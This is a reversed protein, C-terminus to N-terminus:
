RRGEWPVGTESFARELTDYALRAHAMPEYDPRRQVMVSVEATIFGQYGAAHMANLYHVFDFPGEGPTLFEHNPYLGRQDKVHTHIALPAMTPVCEDIGIGMVDMHSIDFNMRVAPHQVREFLWSVKDPLDLSTGSHPEVAFVVDRTAAYEGLSLVREAIIERQPAWDEPGGGVLSAMVAPEGPQALEAALDISDRLRQMNQANREEDLECMSTHGAVATLVLGTDSFLQRITARRSADLAALETSWGPTVALEAGQYGMAAIAPLAEEIAVKPMGWTSYAIRM